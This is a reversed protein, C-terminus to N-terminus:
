AGPLGVSASGDRRPVEEHHAMERAWQRCKRLLDDLHHGRSRVTRGAHDTGTVLWVGNSTEQTTFEWCDPGEDEAVRAGYRRGLDDPHTISFASRAATAVASGLASVADGEQRELYAHALM